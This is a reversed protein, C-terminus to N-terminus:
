VRPPGKRARDLLSEPTEAEDWRSEIFWTAGADAVAGVYDTDDPGDSKGEIVVDFPSTRQRHEACWAVIERLMDAQVPDFPNAGETMNVPIIGDWRVARALSKEKPWAAVAWVPIREQVPKPLLTMDNVQFHKGQHSFPQGTQGKELIELSEDLREARERRDTSDTNVAHFGADDTVGLAVPLVLRGNSLHDITVAEKVVKWPRRRALPLVMAGITVRETVTALAGMMVWPDYVPWSPLSIADWTFVGDWGAQEAEQALRLTEHPTGKSLVFGYKM